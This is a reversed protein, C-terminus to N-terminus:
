ILQTKIGSKLRSHCRCGPQTGNRTGVVMTKITKDTKHCLFSDGEVEAVAALRITITTMMAAPAVAVVAQTERHLGQHVAERLAEEQAVVERHAARRLVAARRPVLAVSLTASSAARVTTMTSSSRSTTWITKGTLTSGNVVTVHANQSTTLNIM